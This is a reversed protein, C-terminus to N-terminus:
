TTKQSFSPLGAIQSTLWSQQSKLTGLATDMANYIALLATRRDALRQDWTAIRAGLDDSV